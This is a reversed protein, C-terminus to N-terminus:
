FKNLQCLNLIQEVRFSLEDQSIDYGKLSYVEFPMFETLQQGNDILFQKVKGHPGFYAIPKEFPLYDFFKTTFFDKNYDALMLILGCANPLLEFVKPGQEKNLELNEIDSLHQKFLDVDKSFILISDDTNQAAFLGLKKAYNELGVYFQGAYVWKRSSAKEDVIQTIGPFDDVDYFHKLHIFKPQNWNEFEQLIETAPSSIFDANLGVFRHRQEEARRQNATLGPIGWNNAKLWPDRLDVWVKVHNFEEKILKVAEYTWSYPPCSVFVFEIKQHTVIDRISEKFSDICYAGEDFFTYDSTVRRRWYEKKSKIKNVWSNPQQLPHNSTISISQGNCFENPIEGLALDGRLVHVKFKNKIFAKSLKSWRRGGIGKFPPSKFNIVLINRM